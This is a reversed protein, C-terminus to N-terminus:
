GTISASNCAITFRFTSGKGIESEVSIQGGLKHVILQCISLGLGTGPVFSDFKTFREFVQELNEKEIGKGTDTVYFSLEGETVRYGMTISGKSTFKAANSLLNSLVQTLRNKESRIICTPYPIDCILEVGKELRPTYVQRLDTLIESVNFDTIIFEIKGAEIKSLDLIDNIIQLLLNNNNEIIRVFEAQEEKDETQALLQSFGVIANLPTRIEHSMNALFASKMRNSEEAKELPTLDIQLGTLKTVFGDANKELPVAFSNVWRYETEGELMVRLHLSHSGDKGETRLDEENKLVLRDEPHLSFNYPKRIFLDPQTSDVFLRTFKRTAVDYDWQIINASRIALESRQIYKRLAMERKAQATIDKQTGILRRVKGNEDKVGM